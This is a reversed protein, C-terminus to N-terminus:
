QLTLINNNFNYMSKYKKQYIRMFFIHHFGFLNM